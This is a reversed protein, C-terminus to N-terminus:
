SSSCSELSLKRTTHKCAFKATQERPEGKPFKKIRKTTKPALCTPARNLYRDQRNRIRVQMATSRWALGTHAEDCLV